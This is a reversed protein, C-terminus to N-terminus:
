SKSADTVTQAKFLETMASSDTPVIVVKGHKAVEAWADTKLILEGGPKQVAKARKAIAQATAAGKSKIADAEANGTERIRLSEGHAANETAERDARSQKITASAIGEAKAIEASREALATNTKHPIGLSEVRVEKVDIGWDSMTPRGKSYAPDSPQKDGTIYEVENYMSENFLRLSAQAHMVFTKGAQDSMVSVCASKIRDIAEIVGGAKIKLKRLDHVAFVFYLHPDVTLSKALLDDGYKQVVEERTGLGVTTPDVTRADGFTIRIAEEMTHTSPSNSNKGKDITAKDLTGFNVKIDNKTVRHIKVPFPVFNLGNDLHDSLVGFTDTIVLENEGVTKAADIWHFAALGVVLLWLYYGTELSGWVAVGFLVTYGIGLLTYLGAKSM